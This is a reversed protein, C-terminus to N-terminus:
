DLFMAVRSFTLGFKKCKPCLHRGAEWRPYLSTLFIEDDDVEAEEPTLKGAAVARRLRAKFNKRERARELKAKKMHDANQEPDRTEIGIETVDLSGCTMCGPVAAAARNISRLSGCSRCIAPFPNHEKYNSRVGGDTTSGKYSCETCCFSRM